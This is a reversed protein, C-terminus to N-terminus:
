KQYFEIRVVEAPARYRVPALSLGVGNTVLVPLGSWNNLGRYVPNEFRPASLRIGFPRWVLQGGHTHGALVLDYGAERAASLVRWAPQHVLLIKLDARPASRLLERLATTSIRQSYVYTIGTVLIKAGAHEVVHHRNELFQWGCRRLGAAIRGPNAWYDHDGMCAFRALRAPSKCLFEVGVSIFDPGNTVLDGGFLLLDGGAQDLRERLRQLKEKGTYRDVQIDAVFTLACEKLAAPLTAVGVRYTQLRVTYSDRYFRVPVYIAFFIAVGLTLVAPIKRGYGPPVAPILKGGLTLGDIAVLYFFVEGVFIVGLWFPFNVLFDAPQLHNRFLFLAHSGSRYRVFILAPLLNFFLLIGMTTFRVKTPSLPMLALVAASIRWGAYIQGTLLFPFIQYIMRIHWPM